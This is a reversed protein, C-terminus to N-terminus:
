VQGVGILTQASNWGIQISIPRTQTRNRASKPRCRALNPWLRATTKRHRTLSPRIQGLKPGVNASGPGSKASIPGHKTSKLRSRALDSGIKASAQCGRMSFMNRSLQGLTAQRMGLHAVGRGVDKKGSIGSLQGRRGRSTGWLQEVIAGSAPIRGFKSRDRDIQAM